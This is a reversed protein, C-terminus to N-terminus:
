KIKINPMVQVIKGKLAIIWGGRSLLTGLIVFIRACFSEVIFLGPYFVPSLAWVAM